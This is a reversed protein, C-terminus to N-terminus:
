KPLYHIDRQVLNGLDMAIHIFDDDLVVIFSIEIHPSHIFPDLFQDCTIIDFNLYGFNEEFDLDDSSIHDFDVSYSSDDDHSFDIFYYLQSTHDVVRTYLIERTELDKIFVLNPTFEM